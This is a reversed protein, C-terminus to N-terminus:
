RTRRCGYVWRGLDLVGFDTGSYPNVLVRSHNVACDRSVDAYATVRSDVPGVGVYVAQVVADGDSVETRDGAVDGYLFVAVAGVPAARVEQQMVDEALVPPVLGDGFARNVDSVVDPDARM